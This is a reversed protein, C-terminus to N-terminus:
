YLRKIMLKKNIIRQGDVKIRIIYFGNTFNSSNITFQQNAVSELHHQYVSQGFSNIIAIEMEKGIFDVLMLNIENTAPNPFLTVTSLSLNQQITTNPAITLNDRDNADATIGTGTVNLNEERECVFNWSSDYIKVKLIYDGEALNEIVQSTGCDGICDDILAFRNDFLEIITNLSTSNSISLDNGNLQINLNACADMTTTGTLEVYVVSDCILRTWDESFSQYQVAYFGDPLGSFRQDGVCNTWYDCSNDILNTFSRDWLFVKNRDHDVGEAIIDNGETRITINCGNVVRGVCKCDAELWENETTPDNDDCPSGVFANFEPCFEETPNGGDTPIDDEM